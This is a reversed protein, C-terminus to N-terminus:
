GRRSCKHQYRRRLPRIFEEETGTKDEPKVIIEDDSNDEDDEDDDNDDNDEDDEDDENDENDEENDKNQTLMNPNQPQSETSNTILPRKEGFVTYAWYMISLVIVIFIVTWLIDVQGWELDTYDSYKYSVSDTM